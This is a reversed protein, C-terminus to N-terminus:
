EKVKFQCKILKEVSACLYTDIILIILIDTYNNDTDRIEFTLRKSISVFVNLVLSVDQIKSLSKILYWEFTIFLISNSRM